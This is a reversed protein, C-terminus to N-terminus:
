GLRFCCTPSRSASAAACQRIAVLEFKRSRDEITQGDLAVVRDHMELVDAGPRRYLAVLEGSEGDGALIPFKVIGGSTDVAVGHDDGTRLHWVGHRHAEAPRVKRDDVQPVVVAQGGRWEM